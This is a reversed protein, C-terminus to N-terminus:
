VSIPTNSKFRYVAVIAGFVVSWVVFAITSVLNSASGITAGIVLCLALHVVVLIDLFRSRRFEHVASSGTYFVFLLVVAVIISLCVAYGVFSSGEMKMFTSAAQLSFLLCLDWGLKGLRRHEWDRAGFFRNAFYLGVVSQMVGWWIVSSIFMVVPEVGIPSSPKFVSGTTFTEHWLGFVIGALLVQGEGLYRGAVLDELMLFYTAYLLVLSGTLVPNLFGVLGHVWFECVLNFFVGGAVIGLHGRM